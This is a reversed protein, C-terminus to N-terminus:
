RVARPLSNLSQWIKKLEERTENLDVASIMGANVARTIQNLNNDDLLYNVFRTQEEKSLIRIGNKPVKPYIIDIEPLREPSQKSTYKIISHLITLIDKVTKPSLEEEFLLDHSFEEILLSSLSQVLCGGLRPKIHKEVMGSYKVYTSQKVRDRNLRLWEDCYFAIRRKKTATSVPKGSIM